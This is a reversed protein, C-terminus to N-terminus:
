FSKGFFRTNKKSFGLIDKKEKTRRATRPKGSVVRVDGKLLRQIKKQGYTIDERKFLGELQTESSTGLFDAKEKQKKLVSKPIKTEKPLLIGAGLIPSRPTKPERYKFQSRVPQLLKSASPQALRAPRKPAEPTRFTFKQTQRPTQRTTSRPIDMMSIRSTEIMKTKPQSKQLNSSKQPQITSYKISEITRQPTYLKSTMKTTSMTKIQPRQTSLPIEYVTTYQPEQIYPKKKKEKQPLILTIPASGTKPTKIVEVKEIWNINVPSVRKTLLKKKTLIEAKQIQLLQQRGSKGAIYKGEGEFSITKTRFEPQLKKLRKLERKLNLQVESKMEDKKIIKIDGAKDTFDIENPRKTPKYFPDSKIPIPKPKIPLKIDSQKPIPSKKLLTNPGIIEGRDVQLDKFGGEFRGRPKYRPDLQIPKPKKDIPLRVDSQIAAKPKSKINSFKGIIEGGGSIDIENPRKTPKYPIEYSFGKIQKMGSSDLMRGIFFNDAKRQLPKVVLPTKKIGKELLKSVGLIRGSPSAVLAIDLTSIPEVVGSRDSFKNQNLKSQPNIEQFYDDFSKRVGGVLDFKEEIPPNLNLLLYNSEVPKPPGQIQNPPEGKSYKFGLMRGIRISGEGTELDFLKAGLPDSIIGKRGKAESLGFAEARTSYEKVPKSSYVDIIRKTLPTEKLGREELIGRYVSAAPATETKLQSQFQLLAVASPDKVEKINQFSFIAQQKQEPTIPKAYSGEVPVPKTLGMQKALPNVFTPVGKSPPRAPIIRINETLITNGTPVATEIGNKTIINYGGSASLTKISQEPSATQGSLRQGTDVNIQPRRTDTAQMPMTPFINEPVTTPKIASERATMEGTPTGRLGTTFGKSILYEQESTYRPATVVQQLSTEKQYQSRAQKAGQVKEYAATLSIGQAEATKRVNQTLPTNPYTLSYQIEQVVYKRQKEIEEIKPQYGKMITNVRSEYDSRSQSGYKGFVSEHAEALAKAKEAELQTLREQFPKEANPIREVEAKQLAVQKNYEALEKNYRDLDKQYQEEAEKQQKEYEKQEKEYAKLEAQYQKEAERDREERIKKTLEDHQAVDQELVKRDIASM